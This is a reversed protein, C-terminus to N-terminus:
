HQLLITDNGRTNFPEMLSVIRTSENSWRATEHENWTRKMDMEHKNWTLTVIVKCRELTNCLQLIFLTKMRNHFLADDVAELSAWSWKFFACVTIRKLYRHGNSKLSSLTNKEFKNMYNKQKLNYLYYWAQSEPILLHSAFLLNVQQWCSPM